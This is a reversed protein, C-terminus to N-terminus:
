DSISFLRFSKPNVFDPGLKYKEQYTTIEDPRATARHWKDTAGTPDKTWSLSPMKIEKKDLIAFQIFGGIENYEGSRVVLDNMTGAIFMGFHTVDEQIKVNDLKNIEQNVTDEVAQYAQRVGIGKIGELFLPIFKPSSFYILSCKGINDCVGLLFYLPFVKISRTKKHYDYTRQFTRQTIHLSIALNKMKKKQLNAKFESICHEGSQVDGAYVIIANNDPVTFLKTAVDEYTPNNRQPYYKTWRSDTILMVAEPLRANPLSELAQQLRGYPYKVSLALTM